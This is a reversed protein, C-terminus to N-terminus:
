KSLGLVRDWIKRIEKDPNREGAVQHMANEIEHHNLMVDANTMYRAFYDRPKNAAM